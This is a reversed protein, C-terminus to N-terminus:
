ESDAPFTADHHSMANKCLQCLQRRVFLAGRLPLTIDFSLSVALLADRREDTKAVDRETLTFAPLIAGDKPPVAIDGAYRYDVRRTSSRTAARNPTAPADKQSLSCRRYGIHAHRITEDDSVSILPMKCRWHLM